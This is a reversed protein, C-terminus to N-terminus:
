AQECQGTYRQNGRQFEVEGGDAICHAATLLSRPGVLTATCSAGQGNATLTAYFSATWDKPNVVTGNGLREETTNQKLMDVAQFQLKTPPSPWAAPKAEDAAVGVCSAGFLGLVALVLRNYRM